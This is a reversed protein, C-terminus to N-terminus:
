AEHVLAMQLYSNVQDHIQEILLTRARFFIISGIILLPLMSLPIVVLLFTRQIRGGFREQSEPTRSQQNDIAM